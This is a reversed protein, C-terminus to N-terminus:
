ELLKVLNQFDLLELRRRIAFTRLQSAYRSERLMNEVVHVASRLLLRFEMEFEADCHDIFTTLDDVKTIYHRKLEQRFRTRGVGDDDYQNTQRGQGEKQFLSIAEEQKEANPEPKIKRPRGRKRKREEGPPNATMADTADDDEQEPLTDTVVPDQVGGSAPPMPEGDGIDQLPVAVAEPVHEQEAGLELSQLTRKYYWKRAKIRNCLKRMEAMEDESMPAGADALGRLHDYRNQESSYRELRRSQTSGSDDAGGDTDGRKRKSKNEYLVCLRIDAQPADTVHPTHLNLALGAKEAAQQRKRERARIRETLTRKERKQAESLEQPPIRALYETRAVEYQEHAIKAAHKEYTDSRHTKHTNLDLLVQPQSTVGLGQNINDGGPLEVSTPAAAATSPAVDAPIIDNDTGTNSSDKPAAPSSLGSGAKGYRKERIQIRKALTRKEARQMANLQRIPFQQLYAYRVNDQEERELIAQTRKRKSPRGDGAVVTSPAIQVATNTPEQPTADRHGAGRDVNDPTVEVAQSSYCQLNNRYRM